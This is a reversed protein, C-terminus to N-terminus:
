RSLERRLVALRRELERRRFGLMKALEDIRYGIVLPVAVNKLTWRAEDSLEEADIGAPPQPQV